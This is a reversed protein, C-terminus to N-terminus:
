LGQWKTLEEAKYYIHVRNNRDIYLKYSGQQLSRRQEEKAEQAKAMRAEEEMRAKEKHRKEEEIGVERRKQCFLMTKIARLENSCKELGRSFITTIM